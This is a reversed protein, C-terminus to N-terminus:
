LLSMARGCLGGVAWGCGAWGCGVPGCLGGVAWRDACGVWLGGTRVAWGCGVPGCLGGVAWRDACGVSESRDM